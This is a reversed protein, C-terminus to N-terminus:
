LSTHTRDYTKWMHYDVNKKHQISSIMKVNRIKNQQRYAIISMFFFNDDDLVNYIDWISAKCFTTRKCLALEFAVKSSIEEKADELAFDM